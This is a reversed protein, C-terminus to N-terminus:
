ESAIRARIRTEGAPECACDPAFFADRVLPQHETFAHVCGSGDCIRQVTEFMLSGSSLVSSFKNM